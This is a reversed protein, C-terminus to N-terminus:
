VRGEGPSYSGPDRHLWRLCARLFVDMHLGRTRLDTQAAAFETPEARFFRLRYQGRM